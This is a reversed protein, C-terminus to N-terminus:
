DTLPPSVTLTSAAGDCRPPNMGPEVANVHLGGPFRLDFTPRIITAESPKGCWNQWQM